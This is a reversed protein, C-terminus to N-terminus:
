RECDTVISSLCMSVIRACIIRLIDEPYLPGDVLPEGARVEDGKHVRLHKGQPVAHEQEELVEGKPGVARVIITRKGRKKDGLEVVGDIESIVAPDKPRRAEFLETM